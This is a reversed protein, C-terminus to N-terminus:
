RNKQLQELEDLWAEMVDNYLKQCEVLLSKSDVRIPNNFNDLLIISDQSQRLISILNPNVTWMGGQSAFTLQSLYKETLYLKSEQHKFRARAELVLKKTNM